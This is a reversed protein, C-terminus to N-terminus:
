NHAAGLIAFEESNLSELLAFVQEAQAEELEIGSQAQSQLPELERILSRASVKQLPSLRLNEIKRLMALLEELQIATLQTPGKTLQGELQQQEEASLGDILLQMERAMPATIMAEQLGLASIAELETIFSQVMVTEQSRIGSKQIGKFVSLLDQLEPPTLIAMEVSPQGLMRDIHKIDESSLSALIDALHQGQEPSLQITAEQRALLAELEPILSQIKNNQEPKLGLEQIQGLVLIIQELEERSYALVSKYYHINM